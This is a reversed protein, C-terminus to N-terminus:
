MVKLNDKLAIMIPDLIVALVSCTSALSSKFGKKFGGSRFFILFLITPMFPAVLKIFHPITFISSPVFLNFLTIALYLISAILVILGDRSKTLAKIIETNM